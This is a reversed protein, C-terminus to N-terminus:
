WYIIDLLNIMKNIMNIFDEMPYEFQYQSVKITNNNITIFYGPSMTNITDIMRQIESYKTKVTFYDKLTYELTNTYLDIYKTNMYYVLNNNYEDFIIYCHIDINIFFNSLGSIIDNM